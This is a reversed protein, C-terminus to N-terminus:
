QNEREDSVPHWYSVTPYPRVDITARAADMAIRARMDVMFFGDESCDEKAPRGHGLINKYECVGVEHMYHSLATITRADNRNDEAAKDLVLFTTTLQRWREEEARDGAKKALHAM